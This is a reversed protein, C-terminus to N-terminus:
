CKPLEFFYDHTNYVKSQLSWPSQTHGYTEPSELTPFLSLHMTLQKCCRKFCVDSDRNIHWQWTWSRSQHPCFESKSWSHPAARWCEWCFLFGPILFWVQFWLVRMLPLGGPLVWCRGYGLSGQDWNGDVWYTKTGGTDAVALLVEPVSWASFFHLVSQISATGKLPLCKYSSPCPKHSLDWAGESFPETFLAWSLM